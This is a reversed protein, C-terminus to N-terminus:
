YEEELSGWEADALWRRPHDLFSIVNQITVWHRKEEEAMWLMARKESESEVEKAKERYLIEAKKEIALAEEWIKKAESQFTFEQKSERMKEFVNKLSTLVVTQELTHDRKLHGDRLEKFTNYHKLEDDALELLISKLEPLTTKEAHELYFQRGDEEMKMGFEFANM